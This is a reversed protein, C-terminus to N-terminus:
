KDSYEEQLKMACKFGQLFADKRIKYLLGFVFDRVKEESIEPIENKLARVCEMVQVDEKQCCQKWGETEQWMEFISNLISDM